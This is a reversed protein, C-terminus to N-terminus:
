IPYFYMCFKEVMKWNAPARICGIHKYNNLEHSVIKFGYSPWMIWLSEGLSRMDFSPNAQQKSCQFNMLMVEALLITM